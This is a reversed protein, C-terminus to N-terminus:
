VSPGTAPAEASLSATIRAALQALADRTEPDTIRGNEDVKGRVGAVNTTAIVEASMVRITRELAEMAFTAGTASAAILAVRKGVFEGMGVVWDLANKLAGPIGFAYEPTAILIVDAAAIEARWADVAAPLPGAEVDPNFPPLEHLARTFTVDYNGGIYALVARVLTANTSQAQLSGIVVLIKPPPHKIV